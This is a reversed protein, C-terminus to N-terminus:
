RLGGNEDRGLYIDELAERTEPFPSERAFEVAEDVRPQIAGNIEEIKGKSLIGKQLLDNELRKIPCKKKWKAVEEKTRYAFEEDLECHQRWRYTKCELLSPGCGDRVKAIAENAAQYVAVVDNGDITVGPINYAVARESVNEITQHLRSKELGFGPAQVGSIGYYNNECLYLIPLKLVAALNLAEHFAGENSAGDGFFCVTVQDTGRLRSSLACGTAIPIGAAVIGNAGIIGRSYDAIHMSGGKGKCYGTRKGFIEAMMKKLDCGKALCHGHGRHTSTIYDSERLNECVGAAIAEEGIYLHPVGVCGEERNLLSVAEEFGRITVMQEYMRILRENQLEM